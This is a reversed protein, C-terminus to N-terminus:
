LVEKLSFSLERIQDTKNSFTFSPMSKFYAYIAVKSDLNMGGLILCPFPKGMLTEAISLFNDSQAPTVTMSGNYDKATDRNLFYYSGTPLEKKISYDTISQKLGTKANPFDLAFGSRIIGSTVPNRISAFSSTTNSSLPPKHVSVNDETTKFPLAIGNISVDNEFTGDGILRRIQAFYSQGEPLSFEIHSGVFITGFEPINIPEAVVHNNSDYIVEGSTSSGYTAEPKITGLFITGSTATNSSTSAVTFSTSTPTTSVTYESIATDSSDYDAHTNRFAIRDGILLNHRTATTVTASGSSSASLNSVTLTSQEKVSFTVINSSSYSVLHTGDLNMVGTGKIIVKDNNVLGHPQSFKISGTNPAIEGINTLTTISSSANFGIHTVTTLPTKIFRGKMEKVLTLEASSPGASESGSVDGVSYYYTDSQGQGAVPTDTASDEIADSSSLSSLPFIGNLGSVTHNQLRVMDGAILAAGTAQFKCFQGDKRCSNATTTIPTENLSDILFHTAEDSSRNITSNLSVELTTTEDDYPLSTFTSTSNIFQGQVFASLTSFYRVPLGKQFLVNTGDYINTSTIGEAISVTSSSTIPTPNSSFDSTAQYTFTNADLVTIPNGDAALNQVDSRYTAFSEGAAGASQLTADSAISVFITDLDKLGHNNVTVTVTKSESSPTFRTVILNKGRLQSSGSSEQYSDSRHYFRVNLSGSVSGTDPTQASSIHYKFQTDSIRTIALGDVNFASNSAGTVRIRDGTVLNHDSTSTMTVVKGSYTASSVSISKKLFSYNADDARVRGLFFSNVQTLCDMSIKDSISSSVWQNRNSDDLMNGPGYTSMPSQSTSIKDIRDKILIKM